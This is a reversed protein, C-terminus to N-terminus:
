TVNLVQATQGALRELLSRLVQRQRIRALEVADREVSLLVYDDFWRTRAAGSRRLALPFGGACVRAIYDDRTTTSTPYASVAGEPDSMLVSLLDEHVGAIEGQSLPLITLTHLRGTLAEATAPVADQRTSGTLVATGSLAGDRNLRAKLASLLEPAKQYEDICVPVPGSVALAPNAVAADLVEPDDLDVVDVGEGAAFERLLTSKGVSRPGHLAVVPEDRVLAHVIRLVRREAMGTLQVAM